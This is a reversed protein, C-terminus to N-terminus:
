ERSYFFRAPPLCRFRDADTAAMAASSCESYSPIRVPLYESRGNLQSVLLLGTWSLHFQDYFRQPLRQSRTVQNSNASRLSDKPKGEPGHVVDSTYLQLMGRHSLLTASQASFQVGCIESCNITSLCPRMMCSLMWIKLDNRAELLM